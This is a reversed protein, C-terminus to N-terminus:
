KRPVVYRYVNLGVMIDPQDPLPANGRTTAIIETKGTSSPGQTKSLDVELHLIKGKISMKVNNM